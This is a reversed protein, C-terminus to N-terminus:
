EHSEAELGALGALLSEAASYPDSRRSRIKEVASSLRPDAEVRARVRRTVEREVLDLIEERARRCHRESEGPLRELREVLAALLEDIGKGSLSDTRFVTELGESDDGALALMGRIDAVVQDAGDRDAKNVVFLDAIEMMGAKIAQIGDGQGPVCIMM